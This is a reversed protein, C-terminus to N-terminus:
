VVTITSAHHLSPASSERSNAAPPEAASTSWDPPQALPMKPAFRSVISPPASVQLLPQIPHVYLLNSEALYAHCFLLFRTKSKFVNEFDQFLYAIGLWFDMVIVGAVQDIASIYVSCDVYDNSHAKTFAKVALEFKRIDDPPTNVSLHIINHLWPQPSRAHNYIAKTSLMHNAMNICEGFSSRFKTSFASIEEVFYPFTAPKEDVECIMIRDGIDYPSTFLVYAVGASLQQVSAGIGFSFAISLTGLALIVDTKPVNWFILVFVVAIVFWVGQVIKHLMSNIDGYSVITASLFSRESFVKVLASVVDSERIDSVFLENFAEVHMAYQQNNDSHPGGEDFAGPSLYAENSEFVRDFVLEKRLVYTSYNRVQSKRSGKADRRVVSVMMKFMRKGLRECDATTNVYGLTNGLHLSVRLKQAAQEFSIVRKRTDLGSAKRNLREEQGGGKPRRSNSSSTNNASRTEEGIGAEVEDGEEDISKKALVVRRIFRALTRSANGRREETALDAVAEVVHRSALAKTVRERYKAATWRRVLWRMVCQEVGFSLALVICTVQLKAIRNAVSNHLHEGGLTVSVNMWGAVSPAAYIGFVMTLIELPVTEFSDVLFACVSGFMTLEFAESSVLMRLVCVFLIGLVAGLCLQGLAYRAQTPGLTSGKNEGRRYRPALLAMFVVTYLTYHILAHLAHPLISSRVYERMEGVHRSMHAWTGDTSEVDTSGAATELPVLRGNLTSQSYMNARSLKRECTQLVHDRGIMSSQSPKEPVRNAAEMGASMARDEDYTGEGGNTSIM